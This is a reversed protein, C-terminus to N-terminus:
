HKGNKTGMKKPEQSKQLAEIQGAAWRLYQATDVATRWRSLFLEVQYHDGVETNQTVALTDYETGDHCVAHFTRHSEKLQSVTHMPSNEFAENMQIGAATGLEAASYRHRHKTKIM